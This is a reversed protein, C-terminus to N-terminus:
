AVDVPCEAGTHPAVGDVPACECPGCGACLSAGSTDHYVDDGAVLDDGCGSCWGGGSSTCWGYGDSVM